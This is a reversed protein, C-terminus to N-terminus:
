TITCRMRHPWDLDLVRERIFAVIRARLLPWGWWHTPDDEALIQRVCPQLDHFHFHQVKAAHMAVIRDSLKRFFLSERNGASGRACEALSVSQFPNVTRFKAAIERYGIDRLTARVVRDLSSLEIVTSRYDQRLYQSVATSFEDLLWWGDYGARRAARDVAAKLWENEFAVAIGQDNRILPWGHKFAVM